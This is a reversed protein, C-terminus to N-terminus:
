SDAMVAVVIQSTSPTEISEHPSQSNSVSAGVGPILPHWVPSPGGCSSSLRCVVIWFTTIACLRCRAGIAPNPQRISLSSIMTGLLLPDLSGASFFDDNDRMPCSARTPPKVNQHLGIILIIDPPSQSPSLKRQTVSPKRTGCRKPSSRSGSTLWQDAVSQGSAAAGKLPTPHQLGVLLM